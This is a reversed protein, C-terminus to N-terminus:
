VVLGQTGTKITVAVGVQETKRDVTVCVGFVAIRESPSIDHELGTADGRGRM